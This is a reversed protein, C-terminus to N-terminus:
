AIEASRRPPDDPRGHRRRAGRQQAAIRAAQDHARLAIAQTRQEQAVEALRLLVRQARTADLRDIDHLDRMVTRGVLARPQVVVEARAEAQDRYAGVVPVTM